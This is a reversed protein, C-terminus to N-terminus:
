RKALRGKPTITGTSPDFDFIGYRSLGMAAFIKPLLGGFLVGAMFGSLRWSKGFMSALLLVSEGAIQLVDGQKLGSCKPGLSTNFGPGGMSGYFMDIIMGGIAGAGMYVGTDKSEGGSKAM